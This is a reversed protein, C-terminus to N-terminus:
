INGIVAEYLFDLSGTHLAMKGWISKQSKTSHDSPMTGVAEKPLNAGIKFARVMNFKKKPKKKIHLNPPPPTDFFLVRIKKQARHAKNTGGM